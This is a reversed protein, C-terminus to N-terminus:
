KDGRITRILDIFRDAEYEAKLKERVVPVKVRVDPDPFPKIVPRANRGSGVMKTQTVVNFYGGLRTPLKQGLAVPYRMKDTAAVAAKPVGPTDDENEEDADTALRMLHTNIIVNVPLAKVMQIFGELRGIAEGWDNIRKPKGMRNKKHLTYYMSSQGMSTLTDVVLWSDPGWSEPPGYDEGDTKWAKMLKIFQPFAFPPKAVPQGDDNISVKDVLTVYIINGQEEPTLYHRLPDLGDDFDAYFLRQGHKALMGTVTTKGDGPDGVNLIRLYRQSKHETSLKPM